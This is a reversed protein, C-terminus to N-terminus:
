LSEKQFRLKSVRATAKAIFSISQSNKSPENPICPFNQFILRDIKSIFQGKPCHFFHELVGQITYLPNFAHYIGELKVFVLYSLVISVLFFLQGCIVQPLVFHTNQVSSYSYHAALAEGSLCLCVCRDAKLTYGRVQKKKTDPIPFASM